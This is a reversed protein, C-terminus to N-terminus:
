RGDRRTRPPQTPHIRICKDNIWAGVPLKELKDLNKYIWESRAKYNIIKGREDRIMILYKSPKEGRKWTSYLNYYITRYTTPTDYVYRFKNEKTLKFPESKVHALIRYKDPDLYQESFIYMEITFEHNYEQQSKQKILAGFRGDVIYIPHNLIQGGGYNSTWPDACFEKPQASERYDISLEPPNIIEVYERDERSLQDLPIQLSTGDPRKLTVKEFAVNQYEGEVTQGNISTWTRMEANVCCAAALLVLLAEYMKKMRGNRLDLRINVRGM